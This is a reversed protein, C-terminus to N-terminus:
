NKLSQYQKHLEFAWYTLIDLAFLTFFELYGGGLIALLRIAVNLFLAEYRGEAFTIKRGDTGGFSNVCADILSVIVNVSSMRFDGYERNINYAVLCCFIVINIKFFKRLLIAIFPLASFEPKATPVLSTGEFISRVPRVQQKQVTFDFKGQRIHHRSAQSISLLFFFAVFVSSWSLRM